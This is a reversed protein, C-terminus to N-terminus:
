FRAGPGPDGGGRFRDRDGRGRGGASDDAPGARRPERRDALQARGPVALDPCFQDVYGHLAKAYHSYLQRIAADPDGGLRDPVVDTIAAMDVLVSLLNVRNVSPRKPRRSGRAAPRTTTGPGFFRLLFLRRRLRLATRHTITSLPSAGDAHGHEPTLIRRKPSSSATIM